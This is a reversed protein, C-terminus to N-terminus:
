GMQNLVDYQFSLFLQRNKFWWNFYIIIKHLKQVLQFFVVNKPLILELISRHVFFFHTISCAPLKKLMFRIAHIFWCCLWHHTFRIRIFIMYYLVFGNNKEFVMWDEITYMTNSNYLNSIMIEIQLILYQSCNCKLLCWNFQDLLLIFSWLWACFM